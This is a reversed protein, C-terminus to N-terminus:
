PHALASPPLPQPETGYAPVMIPRDTTAPYQGIYYGDGVHATPYTTCLFFTYLPGPCCECCKHSCACKPTHPCYTLWACLKHLCSKKAQCDGCASGCGCSGPNGCNQGTTCCDTSCTATKHCAQQVTPTTVPVPDIKEEARCVTWTMLALGAALLQSTRTM